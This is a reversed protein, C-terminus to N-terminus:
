RKREEEEEKKRKEEKRRKVEEQEKRWEGGERRGRGYDDIIIFEEMEEDEDAEEKISGDSWLLGDCGFSTSPAKSDAALVDDYTAADAAAAPSTDYAAAQQMRGSVRNFRSAFTSFARAFKVIPLFDTSYKGDEQKAVRDLMIKARSELEEQNTFEENNEIQEMRVLAPKLFEAMVFIMDHSIHSSHPAQYVFHRITETCARLTSQTTNEWLAPVNVRKDEKKSLPARSTSPEARKEEKRLVIPPLPTPPPKLRPLPAPQVPLQPSRISEASSGNTGNPTNPGNTGNPGNPNTKPVAESASLHTNIARPARTKILLGGPAKIFVPDDWHRKSGDVAKLLNNPRRAPPPVFATLGLDQDYSPRRPATVRMMRNMSAKVIAETPERLANFEFTAHEETAKSRAAEKIMRVTKGGQMKVSRVSGVNMESSLSPPTTLPVTALKTPTKILVTASPATTRPVTAVTATSSSTTPSLLTKKPVTASPPPVKSVTSSLPVGNPHSVPVLVAAKRVLATA